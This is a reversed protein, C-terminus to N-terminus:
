KFKRIAIEPKLKPNDWIFSSIAIYNAGIKILKKYNSNNIGGIVVIPLKINKKVQKLVKLDAKKAGPKLRSKFFSGLALYNVKNKVAKKAMLISNHCTVGLIKNKLKKRAINIPGDLQGMHCGDAKIKSVLNYYDNIIFKVKHKRTIKKIEKSIKFLNEKRKKKLRLQFYKVNGYSLVKDLNNYFDKNIEKPSILYIYKKM